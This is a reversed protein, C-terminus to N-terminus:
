IGSSSRGSERKNLTLSGLGEYRCTWSADEVLGWWQALDRLTPTQSRGVVGPDLRLSALAEASRDAPFQLAFALAHVVVDNLPKGQEDPKPEPELESLILWVGPHQREAVVSLATLLGEPIHNPGGGVGFNAGHMTMGVSITGSLSHLTYNPIIHPSISFKPEGFYRAITACIICRGLFRPCGIIAWDHWSSIAPQISAMAVLLARAGAITQEDSNRLVKVLSGANSADAWAASRWRDVETLPASVYGAAVIAAEALVADFGPQSAQGSSM